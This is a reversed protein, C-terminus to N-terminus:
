LPRSELLVEAIYLADIGAMRIFLILRVQEDPCKKGGSRVRDAAALRLLSIHAIRRHYGDLLCPAEVNEPWKLFHVYDELSEGLPPSLPSAHYQELVAKGKHTM